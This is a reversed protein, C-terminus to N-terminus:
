GARQLAVSSSPMGNGRQCLGPEKGLRQKAGESDLMPKLLLLLLIPRLTDLFLSDAATSVTNACHRWVTRVGYGIQARQVCVPRISPVCTCVTPVCRSLILCVARVEQILALAPVMALTLRQRRETTNPQTRNRETANLATM